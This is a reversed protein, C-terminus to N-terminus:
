VEDGGGLKNWWAHFSVIAADSNQLDGFTRGWVKKLERVGHGNPYHQLAFNFYIEFESMGSKDKCAPDVAAILAEWAPRGAHAEIRSLLDDLIHAQVLMHDAIGSVKTDSIVRKFTPGLVRQAHEFYEPVEQVSIDFIAVGSADVFLTPRNLVIDSDFLLLRPLCGPIVRYAYLKLLQQYYWGERGNTSGLIAQVSAKTFPFSPSTESIWIAGEEEPNEESIVYINRLGIANARLSAICYPLVIADKPHFPIVADFLEANKLPHEIPPSLSSSM